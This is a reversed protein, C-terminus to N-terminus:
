HPGEPLGFADVFFHSQGAPLISLVSALPTERQTELGEGGGGFGVVDGDGFGVAVLVLAGVGVAVGVTAGVEVVVVAGVGVVVEVAAGVVVNVTPMGGSGGNGVAVVVVNGVAVVIGVAV